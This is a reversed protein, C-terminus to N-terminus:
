QGDKEETLRVLLRDSVKDAENCTITVEIEFPKLDANAEFRVFLVHTPKACDHKLVPFHFDVFQGHRAIQAAGEAFSDSGLSIARFKTVVEPRRGPTPRAPADPEIPESPVNAENMLTVYSPFELRVDINSAPLSGLNALAFSLEITRDELEAWARHKVLFDQYDGFFAELARNYNAVPEEEYVRPGSGSREDSAMYEDFGLPPFSTRIEALSLPEEVPEPSVTLSAGGEIFQFVLKPRRARERDLERRLERLEAREADIADPLRYQEPLQILRIPRGRLKLALGSDASVIAAGGGSRSSWDLASAILHDDAIDRSLRHERFDILPEQGDFVLKVNERLTVPDEEDLKSAIWNVADKARDRLKGNPNHVKARELERMLVPTVIISCSPVSALGCWDIEDLKRFHLIINTDVLIDMPRRIYSFVPKLVSFIRFMPVNQGVTNGFRRDSKLM